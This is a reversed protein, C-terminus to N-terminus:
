NRTLIFSPLVSLARWSRYYRSLSYYYIDKATLFHFKALPLCAYLFGNTVKKEKEILVSSLNLIVRMVRETRKNTQKYTEIKTQLYVEM